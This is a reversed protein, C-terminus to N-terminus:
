RVAAPAISDKRWNLRIVQAGQEALLRSVYPNEVLSLRQVEGNTYRVTILYVRVRRGGHLPKEQMFVVGVIRAGDMLLTHLVEGTAFKESQESWRANHARAPLDFLESDLM